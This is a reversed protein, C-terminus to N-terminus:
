PLSKDVIQTTSFGISTKAISREFEKLPKYWTKPPSREGRSLM